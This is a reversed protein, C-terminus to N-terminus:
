DYQAAVLREQIQEHTLMTMIDQVGLGSFDGILRYRLFIWLAKLEIGQAKCATKLANIFVAPQTLSAAHENVMTQLAATTQTGIEAELKKTNCTPMRFCFSLAPVIDTLKKLDGRVCEILFRKRDVNINAIEPYSATLLPTVRHMLEETSLRTIWQHNVWTLKEVDYHVMGSVNVRDFPYSEALEELSQIEKEFSGGILALYNVIAESLYGDNILDDLSFGFDRKSLKKGERNCLMPLHWFTPPVVAFADLLAVQLATNSLHDEGRIIHSIEMHWDDIANAFIFTFSGDPRTLAFDSFNSMDFSVTGRALDTVDIQQDHNIAFRWIFPLRAALKAQIHDRSLHLCTRDYRPPQKLAIQRERKKELVEFTCFCRYIRQSDVLEDLHRAYIATRESQLYPGYAGGVLPGEDYSLGLWALDDLIKKGAIDLNRQMDTDEIRLVFTGQHQRAFLYNLLAARVNGLHMFGTPSPAFRVRVVRSM